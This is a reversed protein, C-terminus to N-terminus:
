SPWLLRPLRCSHCPHAAVEAALGTGTSSSKMCYRVRVSTAAELHLQDILIKFTFSPTRLNPRFCSRLGVAEISRTVLTVSHVPPTWFFLLIPGLDASRRQLDHFSQINVPVKSTSPQPCFHHLRFPALTMPDSCFHTEDSADGRSYVFM